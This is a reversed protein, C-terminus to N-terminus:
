RILKLRNAATMAVKVIANAAAAWGRATGNGGGVGAGRSTGYGPTM